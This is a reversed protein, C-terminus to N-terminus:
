KQIQILIQLSNRKELMINKKKKLYAPKKLCFSFQQFTVIKDHLIHLWETLEM